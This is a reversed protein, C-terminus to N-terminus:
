HGHGYEQPNSREDHDAIAWFALGIIVSLLLLPPWAAQWAYELDTMNGDEDPM